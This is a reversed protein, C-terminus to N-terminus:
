PALRLVHPANAFDFTELISDVAEAERWQADKTYMEVSPELVYDRARLFRLLRSDEACWYLIRSPALKMAHFDALLKFPMYLLYTCRIDGTYLCESLVAPGAESAFGLGWVGHGLRDM